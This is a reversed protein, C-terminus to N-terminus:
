SGHIPARLRQWQLAARGIPALCFARAHLLGSRNKEVRPQRRPRVSKARLEARLTPKSWPELASLRSKPHSRCPRGLADPALGGDPGISDHWDARFDAPECGAFGQIGGHFTACGIDAENKELPTGTMEVNIRRRAKTRLNWVGDLGHGNKDLGLFRKESLHDCVEAGIHKLKM